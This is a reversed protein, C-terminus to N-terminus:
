AARSEQVSATVPVIEEGGTQVVYGALSVVAALVFLWPSWFRRKMPVVYLGRILAAIGLCIAGVILYVLVADAGGRGDMSERALPVISLVWLPIFLSFGVLRRNLRPRRDEPLAEDDHPTLQSGTEDVKGTLEATRNGNVRNRRPITAHM